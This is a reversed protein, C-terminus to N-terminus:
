FNGISSKEKKKKKKKLFQSSKIKVSIIKVITDWDLFVSDYNM